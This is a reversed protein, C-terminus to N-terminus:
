AEDRKSRSLERLLWSRALRWDGSVTRPSVQLVEAIEVETLGGFFKMEVVKSQREDLAALAALAQDLEVLAADHEKDVMLAEDLSVTEAGGGQKLSNRSRAFDVLIRRMVQAAVGYFHARNQWRMRDTDILRVYAENVLATAQLTHGPSEGRMYHQALRHLERYVLPALKELATRDGDSWSTLWETIEHSSPTVVTGEKEESKENSPRSIIAVV